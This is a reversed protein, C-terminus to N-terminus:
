LAEVTFARSTANGSMGLAFRAGDARTLTIVGASPWLYPRDTPVEVKVFGVQRMGGNASGAIISAHRAMSVIRDTFGTVGKDRAVDAVDNENLLFEQYNNDETFYM